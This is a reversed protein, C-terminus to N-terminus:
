RQRFTVTHHSFFSFMFIFVLVVLQATLPPLGTTEVLLPVGALSMAAGTGWVALFTMVQPRVPGDARFVRRRYLPFVFALVACQAMVIAVLYHAGLGLAAAILSLYVMQTLVGTLLYRALTSLLAAGRRSRTPTPAADGHESSVDSTM